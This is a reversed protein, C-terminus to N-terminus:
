HIPPPTPARRADDEWTPSVEGIETFQVGLYQAQMVPHFDQLSQGGSQTRSGCPTGSRPRDAEWARFVPELLYSMGHYAFPNSASCRASSDATRRSVLDITMRGEGEYWHFQAHYFGAPETHHAEAVTTFHHEQRLTICFGPLYAKAGSANKARVDPTFVGRGTGNGVMIDRITAACSVHVIPSLGGGGGGLIRTANDHVFLACQLAEQETACSPYGIAQRSRSPRTGRHSASTRGGRVISGTQGYM